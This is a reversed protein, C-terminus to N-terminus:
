HKKGTFWGSGVRRVAPHDFYKTRKTRVAIMEAYKTANEKDIQGNSLEQLAQSIKRANLETDGAPTINFGHEQMKGSSPIPKRALKKPDLPSGDTNAM